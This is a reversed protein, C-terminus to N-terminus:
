PRSKCAPGDKTPGCSSDKAPNPPSFGARRCTELDGLDKAKPKLGIWADVRAPDFGAECREGVQLLPRRILIPDALMLRLAEQEGLAAPNVSGQKVAPAAGNFWAAVPLGGFFRRLRGAEWPEALLDHEVVEHGAERLLTKQRTNNACGPKGFFQITAM